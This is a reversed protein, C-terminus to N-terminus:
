VLAQIRFVKVGHPSVTATLEDGITESHKSWLETAEYREAFPLSIFEKAAIANMRLSFARSEAAKNFFCVAASGNELPKVLIDQMGTTSIRRCQAGLPDQDIAILDANTVIQYAENETDPTGDERIFRRVDNGLILPAAMMCWLSFHAKNEEYSLAGNGVELMDPDNWGGPGAHRHLHVNIEYIALISAWFPKIDLTTRWLNGVARGWQWPRHLGWECVSYVIKKEPVGADEAYQKAADRLALGMKTYQYAASDFLSAIPNYIKISNAGRRLNIMVQHRGEKTMAFTPPLVTDTAFAGNVEIVAFKNSFSKKRICLTLVYMGDEPVDVHEFTVSGGGFSLGAIYRGTELKDDEVIVAGDALTADDVGYVAEEGTGIPSVTIQEICPARMPITKNHCFDYKFYEIGWEAFTRADVDENGLSAPLDECTLTGNSSYIGLKLGRANVQRVLAPIGSPFTVFDSQLRGNADRQSSQWCDDINLYQYGAARLGSRDMADAVELLLTENIRNRFTNWSSWGMPPTRAAGNDYPEDLPLNCKALQTVQAMTVPIEEIRREKAAKGISNGVAYAGALLGAGTILKKLKM